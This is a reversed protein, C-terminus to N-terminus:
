PAKAQIRRVSPSVLPRVEARFRSFRRLPLRSSRRTMPSALPQTPQCRWIPRPRIPKLSRGSEPRRSRVDDGHPSVLCRLAPRTGSGGRLGPELTCWRRHQSVHFGRRRHVLHRSLDRRDRLRGTRPENDVVPGGNTSYIWTSHGAIAGVATCDLSTECAVGSLGTTAPTNVLTWTHGSDTSILADTGGVAICLTTTPCTVGSLPPTNPPVTDASFTAGGDTSREIVGGAPFTPTIRGLISHNGRHCM